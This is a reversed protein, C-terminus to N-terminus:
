CFLFKTICIDYQFKNNPLVNLVLKSDLFMAWGVLLILGAETSRELEAVLARETGVRVPRVLVLSLFRTHFRGINAAGIGSRTHFEKVRM